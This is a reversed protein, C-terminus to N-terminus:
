NCINKKVVKYIVRKKKTNFDFYLLKIEKHVYNYFRLNKKSVFENKIYLKEIMELKMIMNM